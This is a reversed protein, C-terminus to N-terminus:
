RTSVGSPEPVVPALRPRVGGAPDSPKPEGSETGGDPKDTAPTDAGPKPGGGGDDHRKAKPRPCKISYVSRAPEGFEAPSHSWSIHLHHGRGHNPDGDYGIWRFPEIPENQEPESWVALADIEAWTGGALKDPVIDVALGLPHEGNHAHIGSISYGDTIFIPYHRELWKLDRLLRRDIMEGPFGPIDVFRGGGETLCLGPSLKTSKMRAGATAVVAALALIVVVSTTAIKARLM